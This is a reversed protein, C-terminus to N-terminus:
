LLAAFLPARGDEPVTLNCVICPLAPFSGAASHRPPTMGKDMVARRICGRSVSAARRNDSQSTATEQEMIVAHPKFESAACVRTKLYLLSFPFVGRRILKTIDHRYVAGPGLLGGGGEAACTVGRICDTWSWAGSRWIVAGSTKTRNGSRLLMRLSTTLYWALGSWAGLSSDVSSAHGDSPAVRPTTTRRRIKGARRWRKGLM